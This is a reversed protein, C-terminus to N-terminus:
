RNPEFCGHRRGIPSGKARVSPLLKGVILWYTYAVWILFVPAWLLSGHYGLWLVLLLGAIGTVLHWGAVAYARMSRKAECPITQADALTEKCWRAFGAQVKTQEGISVAKLIVAVGLLKEAVDAPVAVGRERWKKLVSGHHSRYRDHLLAGIRNLYFDATPKDM